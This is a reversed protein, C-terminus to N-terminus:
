GLISPNGNHPARPVGNADVTLHTKEPGGPATKDIILFDTRAADPRGLDRVPSGNVMIKADPSESQVQWPM